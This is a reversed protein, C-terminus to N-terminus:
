AKKAGAAGMAAASLKAEKENLRRLWARRLDILALLPVVLSAPLLLLYPLTIVYMTYLAEMGIGMAITNRRVHLVAWDHDYDDPLQSEDTINVLRHSAIIEVTQTDAHLHMSRHEMSVPVNVDLPWFVVLVLFLIVCVFPLALLTLLWTRM